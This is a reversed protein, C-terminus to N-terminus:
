RLGGDAGVERAALWREIARYGPDNPEGFVEGGGHWCGGHELALPKRLALSERPAVGHAFAALRQANHALEAESLPEDLHLRAGDMRHQGPAFLCLPREARGHCGGSACRDELVPEVDAVFLPMPGLLLPDADSAPGACASGASALAALLALRSM